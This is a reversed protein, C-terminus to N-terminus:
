VAIQLVPEPSALAARAAQRRRARQRRIVFDAHTAMGVAAWAIMIAGRSWYHDVLGHVLKCVVLAGALATTSFLISDRKLLRHNKWVMRALAAHLFAFAALGVVGTEALTLWFINTADYEKRLGVGVGIVPSKEFEMRAFAMSEYRLRINWNEKDFGTAYERSQKPLLAWLIAILPIMLLGLRLMVNFQRRLTLLVFIGCMAGAWGGRSLSFFLGAVLVTMLVVLLRRESPRSSRFWLEAGVIVAAALSSGVGNKHLGLVYGSRTVIVAVALISAVWLLGKLVFLYDESRRTFSTFLCVAVILYIAIQILSAVATPRWHFACTLGCVVLYLVAPFFTPGIRVPRSRLFFLPLALLLNIEAISFSVGGSSIDNQFPALAFILLLAVKPWRWGVLWFICAYIAGVLYLM